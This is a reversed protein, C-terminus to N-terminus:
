RSRSSQVIMTVLSENRLRQAAVCGHRALRPMQVPAREQVTRANRERQRDQLAHGRVAPRGLSRLAEKRAVKRIADNVAGGVPLSRLPIPERGAGARIEAEVLAQCRQLREAGLQRDQAAQRMGLAAVHAPVVGSVSPEGAGFEYFTM